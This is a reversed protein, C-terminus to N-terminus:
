EDDDDDDAFMDDVVPTPTNANNAGVGGVGVVVVNGPQQQGPSGLVVDAMRDLQRKTHEYIDMEGADMLSMSLRTVDEIKAKNAAGAKEAARRLAPPLSKNNKASKGGLRRLAASVTEESFELHAALERMWMATQHQTAQTQGADSLASFQRKHQEAVEPRAVQAAAFWAADGQEEPEVDEGDDDDDDDDMEVECKEADRASNYVDIGPLLAMCKLDPLVFARAMVTAYAWRFYELSYREDGFVEPDAEALAPFLAEYERRVLARRFLARERLASGQLLELEEDSWMLLSDVEGPLADYYARWRMGKGGAGQRMLAVALTSTSASDLPFEHESEIVGSLRDLGGIKKMARGVEGLAGTERLADRTTLALADGDSRSRLPLSFAAEGEDMDRKATGLAGFRESTAYTTTKDCEVGHSRLWACLAGLVYADARRKTPGYLVPQPKNSMKRPKYSSSSAEMMV